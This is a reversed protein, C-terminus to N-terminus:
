SIIYLFVTCGSQGCIVICYPAHAKRTPYSLSCVGDSYPIIIAQRSCCHDLSKIRGSGTTTTKMTARIKRRVIGRRERVISDLNGNIFGNYFM